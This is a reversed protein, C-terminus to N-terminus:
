FSLARSPNQVTLKDLDSDSIGARKMMPFVNRLIHDYGPGGYTKLYMKSCVDQSVLLQDIFGKEVLHRLAQVREVDRPNVFGISDVYEEEGFTDYEIYPGRRALREEYELDLVVDMHSLIVHCLEVSEEELINLIRDGEKGWPCVHVNISIKTALHARAAARLVKEEV